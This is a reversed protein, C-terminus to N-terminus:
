RQDAASIMFWKPLPSRLFRPLRCPLNRRGSGPQACRAKPISLDRLPAFARSCVVPESLLNSCRAAHPSRGECPFLFRTFAPTHPRVPKLRDDPRNQLHLGPTKVRSHLRNALFTMATPSRFATDFLLSRGFRFRPHAGSCHDTVPWLRRRPAFPKRGLRESAENLGHMGAPSCAARRTV